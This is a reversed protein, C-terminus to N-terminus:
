RRRNWHTRESNQQTDAHQELANATSEFTALIEMGIRSMHQKIKHFSVGTRSAAPQTQEYPLPFIEASM